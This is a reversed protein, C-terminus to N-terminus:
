ELVFKNKLAQWFLCAENHINLYNLKLSHSYLTCKYWGLAFVKYKLNLYINTDRGDLLNIISWNEDHTISVRTEWM